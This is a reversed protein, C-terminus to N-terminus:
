ALERLKREVGSLPAYAAFRSVAGDSETSKEDRTYSIGAAVM